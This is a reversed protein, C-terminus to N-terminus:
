NTEKQINNNEKISINKLLEPLEEGMAAAAKM